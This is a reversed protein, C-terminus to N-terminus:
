RKMKITRTYQSPHTTEQYGTRTIEKKVCYLKYIMNRKMEHM